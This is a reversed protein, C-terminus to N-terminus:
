SRKSSEELVSEVTISPNDRNLAAIVRMVLDFSVTKTRDKAGITFARHLTKHPVGVRPAAAEIGGYQSVLLEQIV